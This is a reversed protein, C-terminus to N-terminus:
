KSYEKGNQYKTGLFIQCDKTAALFCKFDFYRHGLREHRSETGPNGSKEQHLMGFRSFIFLIAMFNVLHGGFIGFQLIYVLM